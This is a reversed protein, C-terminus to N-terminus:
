PQMGVDGLARPLVFKGPALKGLAVFKGPAGGGADIVLAGFSAAGGDGLQWASCVVLDADPPL